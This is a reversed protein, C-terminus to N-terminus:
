SCYVDEEANLIALLAHVENMMRKYARADPLCTSALLAAADYVVTRYEEMQGLVKQEKLLVLVSLLEFLHHVRFVRHINATTTTDDHYNGMCDIIVASKM